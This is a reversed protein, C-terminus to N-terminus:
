ISCEILSAGIQQSVNSGVVSRVSQGALAVFSKNDLQFGFFRDCWFVNCSSREFNMQETLM